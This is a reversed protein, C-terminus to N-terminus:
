SLLRSLEEFLAPTSALIRNGHQIADGALFDNTRGGAETAIVLGALVDWVNIHREWYADFRGAAAYAVGLAGSGLRLYEIGNALLAEMDRVHAAVPQRYSFGVCVRARETNGRRTVQIPAGNLFAGRGKLASFLEDAIPNYILGLVPQKGIMLGLSVCWLSIGSLFNATGDIPDIVWVAESQGKVGREEGLFASDPFDKELAGVILYV